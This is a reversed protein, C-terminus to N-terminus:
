DLFFCNQSNNRNGQQSRRRHEAVDAMQLDPNTKYQTATSCSEQGAAWVSDHSLNCHHKTM